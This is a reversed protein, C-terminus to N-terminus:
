GTSRALDAAPSQTSFTMALLCDPEARPSTSEPHNPAVQNKNMPAHFILAVEIFDRIFHVPEIGRDRDERERRPELRGQRLLM